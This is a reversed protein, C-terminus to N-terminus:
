QSRHHFPNNNWWHKRYFTTFFWRCQNFCTATYFKVPNLPTGGRGRGMNLLRHPQTTGRLYCTVPDCYRLNIFKKLPTSNCGGRGRGGWFILSRPVRKGLSSPLICPVEWIATKPLFMPFIEWLSLEPLRKQTCVECSQNILTSSPSLMYPFVRWFSPNVALQVKWKFVCLFM